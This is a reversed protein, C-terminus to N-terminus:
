RVLLEQVESDQTDIRQWVLVSDGIAASLRLEFNGEDDAVGIVGRELRPNYASVFAGEIAAFGEITVMGEDDPTSM